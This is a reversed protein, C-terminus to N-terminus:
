IGGGALSRMREKRLIKEFAERWRKGLRRRGWPVMARRVMRVTGEQHYIAYSVNTAVGFSDGASSALYSSELRRTDRLPQGKRRLPARWPYDYPDVGREFGEHVQNLAEAALLKNCRQAEAQSAVKAFARGVRRLEEFDGTMRVGGGM